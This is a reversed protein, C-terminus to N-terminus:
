PPPRVEIQRSAADFSGAVGPAIRHRESIGPWACGDARRVPFGQPRFGLSEVATQCDM